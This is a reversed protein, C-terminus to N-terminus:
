KGTSGFGGDGRSTDLLESTVVVHPMLIPVVILQAIRDGVKVKYDEMSCNQLIVGVEGRYDNDIVGGIVTIGKVALSSRSALQGYTGEPLAMKIHTPVTAQGYSPITVKEAAYIDLGASGPTKREPIRGQPSLINIKLIQGTAAM